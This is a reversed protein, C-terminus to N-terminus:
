YGKIFTENFNDIKLYIPVSMLKGFSKFVEFYNRRRSIFVNEFLPWNPIISALYKKTPKINPSTIARTKTYKPM